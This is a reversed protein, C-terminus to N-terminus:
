KETKKRATKKVTTKKTATGSVKPAAKPTAEKVKTATKKPSATKVKQVGEIKSLQWELKKIRAFAAKVKKDEDISKNSNYVDYVRGGLGTMQDQIKTKLDFIEYQRKAAAKIEDVKGYFSDAGEKLASVGEGFGKKLDEKIKEFLSNM